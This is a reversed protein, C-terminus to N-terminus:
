CSALSRSRAISSRIMARLGDAAEVHESIPKLEVWFLRFSRFRAPDTALMRVLQPLTSLSFKTSASSSASSNPTPPPKSSVVSGLRLGDKDLSDGPEGLSDSERSGRVNLLKGARGNGTRLCRIDAGDADGVFSVNWTVRCDTTRADALMAGLLALRRGSVRPTNGGTGGEGTVGTRAGTPSGGDRGRRFRLERFCTGGESM